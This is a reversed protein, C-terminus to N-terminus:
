DCPFRAALNALTKGVVNALRRNAMFRPAAGPDVYLEYSVRVGTEDPLLRWEGAAARIREASEVPPQYDPLGTLQLRLGQYNGELRTIRYIMDRNRLPWPTGTLVYYVVGSATRELQSANLTYPIWDAFHAADAVFRELSVLDTCVSVEGRHVNFGSETPRSQVAIGDIVRVPQWDDALSAASWMLLCVVASQKLRPGPSM